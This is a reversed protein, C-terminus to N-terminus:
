FPSKLIRFHRRVYSQTHSFAAALASFLSLNYIILTTTASVTAYIPYGAVSVPNALAPRGIFPMAAAQEFDSRNGLIKVLVDNKRAANSAVHANTLSRLRRRLM